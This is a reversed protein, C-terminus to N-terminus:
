RTASEGTGYAEALARLSTADRVARERGIGPQIGMAPLTTGDALDLQVWPDGVRLNVRVVEPWALRRKTTLNVVTVGDEDAVVKPRSLLALVAFVLAGAALLTLRDAVGWPRAGGHPLLLAIVTFVSLVVAGVSLLVVRTRVPRFMVPLAPTTVPTAPTVPPM